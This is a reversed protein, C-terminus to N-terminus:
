PAPKLTLKGGAQEIDAKNMKMKRFQGTAFMEAQDKYFPSMLNGSQGTPSVTEGNELDGFDTIKRLAPGGNAPFYGTTDLDFHLNNIVESGGPVAFSGVSFIKDMLEVAGLAHHHTLTHIKGWTWESSNKGSTKQLSALTRQAAKRIIDTRTEKKDKTNVNDWWPSADNAIFIDYSNKPVSTGMLSKYAPGGLEDHMALFMTQSLMNYYVSPAVDSALHNGDWSELLNIIDDFGDTGFSKLVAAMEKAIVPHMTSVVDLNVKKVEAPTWKKNENLLSVIRGARSRPYYYGPYLIGDVTDPQNNASYVYGWPPNIAHPNKSFDYFRDYEDKGSTGDLFLKSNVHAPRVPLKAVAWWAINGARDGYMLNLGPSSFLSAAKQADEFQRAHILQYAAQLSYNTDHNLLWWLTVPTNTTIVDRMIGNIIPGHRTNRIVVVVDASDKVEIVENRITMDEWQGNFKAQYANQPNTEEKYFDTDDNEFMTLGWGCFDNNGLLGFPVGALHHGYFRFGPYEIHAEYWVAPQGFGIHTDNALIPLGSATRDGGIVWGNSGSWLPVPIKELAERISAILSDTAAKKVPGDFNKIREATAPTQMALDKLYGEGLENKIKELVPDAQIGEAFGFSMFGVALYIDEPTFETKPIGIISFELPTKGNKIFANIGKQYALAAKQFASTDSSLFKKAHAKAFENISLTRFLKDVPLLSGGLIESLRGSAARRLMEMQFLRDQAHVYGLAYYADPENQAYIHPVGVEDFVVEVPSTLGALTQTGSYSPATSRLFIYGGVIILLLLALLGLFLRKLIKM